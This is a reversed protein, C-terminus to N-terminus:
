PVRRLPPPTWSGDLVARRPSYIRMTPAMAGSKPSPLWNSEKAVGPSEPQIWVDLSGDANPKLEDRDGLAFRNAPNPVQFGQGDYMTISWFADAPPLKGKDFHLVYRNAGDLPQGDADVFATPYIADAPLNAGLGGLAIAARQLYSTGYTGTNDTLINWGNVRTGLRKMAEIADTQGQKAGSEIAKVLAPDLRSTDWSKGPEIGIARMRFRIPYDNPHPPHIRMLEALRRLTEVGSLGAVQVLPPTKTDVTADVRSQAPPDYLEGWHALPTLVLRDQIRHVNGFDGPGNTQIRGMIWVTPTPADIRVVAEPLTGTWGPPVFVYSGPATGTTRSGVSAFVDTWMDLAPVLYYRGLTDPVTLVMPGDRLDLWAFSYLTDFNFRVIDRADAKPYGRFHAFQNIPARGPVSKADPVATAQRMTADMLVIPFAYAYAYVDRAIAKAEDPTPATVGAAPLALLVLAAVLRKMFPGGEAAAGRRRSPGERYANTTPDM